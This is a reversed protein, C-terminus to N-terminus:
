GEIAGGLFSHWMGTVEMFKELIYEQELAFKIISEDTFVYDLDVSDDDTCERQELQQVFGRFKNDINEIIDDLLYQKVKENNRYWNGEHSQVTSLDLYPIGELRDADFRIDSHKDYNYKIAFDKAKVTLVVGRFQTSKFHDTDVNLCKRYKWDDYFWVDAEMQNKGYVIKGSTGKPIILDGNIIEVKTTIQLGEEIERYHSKEKTNWM